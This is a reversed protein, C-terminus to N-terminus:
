RSRCASASSALSSANSDSHATSGLIAVLRSASPTKTSAPVCANRSATFALVDAAILSLKTYWRGDNWCGATRPASSSTSAVSPPM